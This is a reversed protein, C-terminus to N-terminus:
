LIGSFARIADYKRDPRAGQDELAELMYFAVSELRDLLKPARANQVPEVALFAINFGTWLALGTAGGFIWSLPNWRAFNRLKM